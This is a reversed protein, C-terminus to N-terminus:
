KGIIQEVEDIELTRIRWPEFKDLLYLVETQGCDFDVLNVNGVVVKKSRMDNEVVKKEEDEMGDTEHAIKREIEEDLYRQEDEFVPAEQLSGIVYCGSEVFKNLKGLQSLFKKGQFWIIYRQSVYKNRHCRFKKQRLAFTVMNNRIVPFNANYGEEDKTPIPQGYKL